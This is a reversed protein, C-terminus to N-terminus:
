YHKIPTPIPCPQSPGGRLALTFMIQLQGHMSTLQLSYVIKIYIDDVFNTSVKELGTLVKYPQDFHHRAFLYTAFSSEALKDVGNSAVSTPSGPLPADDDKSAKRGHWLAAPVVLFAGDTTFSLRRFFSGLTLEDAFMHHRKVSPNTAKSPSSSDKANNPDVTADPVIGSTSSNSSAEVPKDNVFKMTKVKNQLSFSSNTLIEPLVKNQLIAKKTEDQNSQQDEAVTSNAQEISTSTEDVTYKALGENLVNEKVAKRSYVKVMRDSGMSALYVGKPDYAVGQIYHTHDKTSRHVSRWDGAGGSGGAASGSANNYIEWVTMTHDLSCLTFRRSDASWAVDMVDDSQNFLIKMNLDTEKEVTTWFMMPNTTATINTTTFLSYVVM